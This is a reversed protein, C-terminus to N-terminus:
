NRPAKIEITIPSSEVKGVFVRKENGFYNKYIGSVSYRGPTLNYFEILDKYSILKGVFASPALSTLDDDTNKGYNIKAEVGHRVGDRGTFYLEINGREGAPGLSFRKNVVIDTTGSNKIMVSLKGDADAIHFDIPEM